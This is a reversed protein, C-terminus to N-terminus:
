PLKEFFADEKAWGDNNNQDYEIKDKEKSGACTYSTCSLTCDDVYHNVESEM